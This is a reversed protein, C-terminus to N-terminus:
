DGEEECQQGEIEGEGNEEGGRGPETVLQEGNEEEEADESEEEREELEESEVVRGVWLIVFCVWDCEIIEFRSKRRLLGRRLVIRRGVGLVVELVLLFGELDRGVEAFLGNRVLIQLLLLGNVEDSPLAPDIQPDDVEVRGEFVGRGLLVEAEELSLDRFRAFLQERHVVFHLDLLKYCEHLLLSQLQLGELELSGRNVEPHLCLEDWGGETELHFEVGLGSLEHVLEAVLEDPGLAGGGLRLSVERESCRVLLHECHFLRPGQSIRQATLVEFDVPDM